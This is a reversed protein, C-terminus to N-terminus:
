VAKALRVLLCGNGNSRQVGSYRGPPLPIHREFWGQPLEMRHIVARRFEPPLVRHGAIVLRDGEIRAEVQEPDVGPLAVLVLVERETEIVDAPPEWAPVPRDRRVVFFQRQLREARSLMDCAELWTWSEAIRAM